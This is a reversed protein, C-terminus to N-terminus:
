PRRGPESQEPGSQEPGSQEPGYPEPESRAPESQEPESRAPESQEPESPEPESPEPESPEPESPETTSRSVAAWPGPGGSRKRRLGVLAVVGLAVAFWLTAFRILLTVLTMKAAGLGFGFAAQLGLAVMVAETSGVGGPLMSVAGFLTAMAYVIVAEGFGGGAGAGDLLLRFAFCELLWAVAALSTAELLLAPRCLRRMAGHGRQIADLGREASPWRQLPGRLAAVLAPLARPHAVGALFVITLGLVVLFLLRYAGFRAVGIAAICLLGLVDTFREAVVVTAADTLSVGRREKLLWAKFVEGMKGPSVTFVFGAIFIQLAEGYPVPAGIASLYRRFRVARVLYNGFALGIAPLVMVLPFATTAEGLRDVDAFLAAGILVLGLLVAATWLPKGIM